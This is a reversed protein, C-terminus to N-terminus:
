VGTMLNVGQCKRVELLREELDADDEDGFYAGLCLVIFLLAAWRIDVPHIDGVAVLDFFSNYQSLFKPVHLPHHIWEVRELQYSRWRECTM